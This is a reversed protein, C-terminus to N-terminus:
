RPAGPSPAPGSGAGAQPYLCSWRMIRVPQNFWPNSRSPADVTIVRNPIPDAEVWRLGGAYALVHIGSSTVAIDGPQISSHDLGDISPFEGIFSTMGLYSQGIQKATSDHWWYYLGRRLLYPNLTAMGVKLHADIIGRRILGSCDIGFRGEGGWHYRAGGYSTLSSIYSRRLRPGDYPRGPLSILLLGSATVVLVILRLWKTSWALFVSTATLLAIFLVAAARSKTTSLPSIYLTVLVLVSGGWAITPLNRLPKFVPKMTIRGPCRCLSLPGGYSCRGVIFTHRRALVTLSIVPNRSEPASALALHTTLAMGGRIHRSSLRSHPLRWRHVSSPELHMRPAAMTRNAIIDAGPSGPPPDILAEM